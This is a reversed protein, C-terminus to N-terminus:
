GKHNVDSLATLCYSVHDTYNQRWCRHGEITFVAVPHSSGSISCFIWIPRPRRHSDYPPNPTSGWQVQHCCHYQTLSFGSSIRKLAAHRLDQRINSSVPTSFFLEAFNRQLAEQVYRTDENIDDFRLCCRMTASASASNDACITITM